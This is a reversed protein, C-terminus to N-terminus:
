SRVVPTREQAADAPSITRAHSNAERRRKRSALISDIILVLLITVIIAVGMAIAEAKTRASTDPAAVAATTLPQLTVQESINKTYPEQRKSLEGRMLNVLQNATAAAQRPDSSTATFAIVTSRNLNGVTFNTSLHQAELQALSDTSELSVQIAATLTAASMSVYPNVPAPPANKDAPPATPGILVVSATATYEPQVSSSMTYAGILSAAALPVTIYFRRALVLIAGWIDV